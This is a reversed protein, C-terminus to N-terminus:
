FVISYLQDHIEPRQPATATALAFGKKVQGTAKKEPIRFYTVNM